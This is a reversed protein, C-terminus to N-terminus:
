CLALLPPLSCAVPTECMGNVAFLAANLQMAADWTQFNLAVMHCGSSWAACVDEAEMNSSIIRTGNPYIRTLQRQNHVLLGKRQERALSIVRNESLSNMEWCFGGGESPQKGMMADKLKTASLYTVDSLEQAVPKAMPAPAALEDTVRSAPAISTSGVSGRGYTSRSGSLEFGVCESDQSLLEAPRSEETMTSIRKSERVASQNGRRTTFSGKRRM